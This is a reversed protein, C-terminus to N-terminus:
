FVASHGNFIKVHKAHIKEIERVADNMLEAKEEDELGEEGSIYTAINGLIEGEELPEEIHSFGGADGSISAIGATGNNGFVYDFILKM